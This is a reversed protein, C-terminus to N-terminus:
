LSYRRLHPIRDFHTDNSAVDLCGVRQMAAYHLADRPRLSFQTIAESMSDLDAALVDLLTLNPLERLQRLQAVVQPSFEAILKEEAARLHDLASGPYRDKVLALILRYALEDFTLVSTYAMLEGREIREFFPVAAQDIGRLLAYPVMTDLYIGNGSFSHLPATM